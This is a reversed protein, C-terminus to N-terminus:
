GNEQEGTWGPAQDDARGSQPMHPREILPFARSIDLGDAKSPETLVERRHILHRAWHRFIHERQVTTRDM